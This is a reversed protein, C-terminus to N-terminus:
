EKKVESSNRDTHCDRTITISLFDDQKMRTAIFRCTRAIEEKYNNTPINIINHSPEGLKHVHDM